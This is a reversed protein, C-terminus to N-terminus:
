YDRHIEVSVRSDRIEGGNFSEERNAAAKPPARTECEYMCIRKYIKDRDKKWKPMKRRAVANRKYLFLMYKSMCSRGTTSEIKRQAFNRTAFLQSPTSPVGLHVVLFGEELDRKSIESRRYDM